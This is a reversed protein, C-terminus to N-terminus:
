LAKSRSFRGRGGSTIVRGGKGISDVAAQMNKAAIGEIRRRNNDLAPRMFPRAAMKVTGFELFRGHFAKASGVVIRVRTKSLLKRLTAKLDGDDVPINPEVAAMLLDGAEDLTPAIIQEQVGSRGLEHLARMLSDAGVVDVDLFRRSRPGKTAM